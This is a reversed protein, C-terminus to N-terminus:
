EVSAETDRPQERRLLIHAANLASLFDSRDLPWSRALYSLIADDSLGHHLLVEAAVVPAADRRIRAAEVVLMARQVPRHTTSTDTRPRPPNPSM